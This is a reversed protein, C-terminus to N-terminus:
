AAINGDNYMTIAPTVRPYIGNHIKIMIMDRLVEQSIIQALGGGCMKIVHHYAYWIEEYSSMISMQKKVKQCAAIVSQAIVQQMQEIGVSNYLVLAPHKVVICRPYGALMTNWDDGALHGGNRSDTRLLVAPIDLMKAIVFEVVTGSDLDPGDFNFLVFDAQMIAKIDNNRIDVIDSLHGEWNQPLTCQYLSDSAEEIRKALLHNGVIHKQDFLEGAFYVKYM